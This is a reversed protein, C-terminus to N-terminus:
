QGKERHRNEKRALLRVGRNPNATRILRLGPRQNTRLVQLGSQM